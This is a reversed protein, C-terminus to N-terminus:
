RTLADIASLVLITALLAAATWRQPYRALSVALWMGPARAHNAIAARALMALRSTGPAVEPSRPARDLAARQHESLPLGPPGRLVQLVTTAFDYLNRDAPALKDNTVGRLLRDATAFKGDLCAALAAWFRLTPPCEPDDAFHAGVHDLVRLAESDKERVLLALVLNSLMWPRAAPHEPWNRLWRIVARMRGRATLAFGMLGWLTDDKWWEQSARRMASLHRDLYWGTPSVLASRQAREGVAQLLECVAPKAADGAARLL